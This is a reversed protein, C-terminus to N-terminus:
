SLANQKLSAALLESREYDDTLVLLGDSCHYYKDATALAKKLSVIASSHNSSKPPLNVIRKEIWDNWWGNAQVGSWQLALDQHESLYKTIASNRPVFVTQDLASNGFSKLLKLRELVSLFTDTEGKQGEGSALMYLQEVITPLRESSDALPLSGGPGGNLSITAMQIDAAIGRTWDFEFEVELSGAVLLPQGEPVEFIAVPNWLYGGCSAQGPNAPLAPGLWGVHPLRAYWEISAVSPASRFSVESATFSVSVSANVGADAGPGDAANGNVGLNAGISFGVTATEVTSNPGFNYLRAGPTKGVLRLSMYRAYYGVSVWNAAPDRPAGQIGHFVDGAVMYYDSVRSQDGRVLKYISLKASASLTQNATAVTGWGFDPHGRRSWDGDLRGVLQWVSPDLDVPM